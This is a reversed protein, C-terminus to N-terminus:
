YHYFPARVSLTKRVRAQNRDDKLSTVARLCEGCGQSIIQICLPVHIIIFDPLSHPTTPVGSSVTVDVDDNAGEM